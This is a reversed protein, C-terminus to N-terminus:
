HFAGITEFQKTKIKRKMLLAAGSIGFALIGLYTNPESVAQRRVVQYSSFPERGLSQFNNTPDFIEVSLGLLYSNPDDSLKSIAGSYGVVVNILCAFSTKTSCGSEYLVAALIPSGPPGLVISPVAGWDASEDTINIQPSSFFFNSVANPYLVGPNLPGVGFSPEPSPLIDTNLTYSGTAGSVTTFNFDLLAAQVPDVAVTGMAVFAAVAVALSLKQKHM